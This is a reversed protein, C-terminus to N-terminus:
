KTSVIKYYTRATLCYVAGYFLAFVAFCILICGIFLNSNMLQLATMLKSLIPFAFAVHVGAAILPLFFVSLVQSHIAKKVESKSLGVKQMIEFREKDDYGESMQKYYIILVAAMIFLVGLFIGVFFMGGYLAYLVSSEEERGEVTGAFDSGGLSLSIADGAQIQDERPLNLDFGYVFQIQSSNKGYVAEQEQELQAIIDMDQVVIFYSNVLNEADFGMHPFDELREKVHFNMDFIQLSEESYDAKNGYILIEDRDLEVEEGAFRNYDELPIFYLNRLRGSLVEWTQNWSGDREATMVGNEELAAFSLYTYAIQNEPNAGFAQAAENAQAEVEDAKQWDEANIIIDRPYQQAVVDAVGIYMATTVSITVLVATSLICINALGVANRKMRYIMGSVTIFHKTQYYYSKKRRLGKLVAISGTTFLCYTGLIVLIVALFFNNLAAIPDQTTISIYYGGLLLFTGLIALVWKTKPEREGVQGGRLLDVPKAKQIQRINSLFNLLFICCYLAAAAGMAAPSLAFSISVEADLSVMQVILLACLKHLLIGVVLGMALSFVSTMVTEWFMVRAIHKKEMGLINYLGFEKKRRKVLFSNTYFLFIVSFLGVVFCGFGLIPILAGAGFANELGDDRYLAGIIYFMAICGICTLIYPLFIKANKRLNTWAMRFYFARSM